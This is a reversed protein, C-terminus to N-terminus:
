CHRLPREMLTVESEIREGARVLGVSVREGIRDGRLVAHVDGVDHVAQGGLDLLIDGVLLGAQEAPGSPALSLVILGDQQDLGLKRRLPEPLSVPQMGLGLYGHAVRGSVLLQEAIRSVTSAPIVLSTERSLASTGIGIVQGRTDAIPGGSFGAHLRGDLRLMRDIHGGRWTRWESGVSGLIGFSAAPEGQLNRALSVVLHGARVSQADGVDAGEVGDGAYSLVAVDTGVDAGALTSERSSGDPLVIRIGEAHRIAHAVTVIMGARWLVGAAIIHRSARVAVVSRAVLDVVDALADSFRTFAQLNSTSDTM